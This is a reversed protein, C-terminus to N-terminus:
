YHLSLTQSKVSNEGGERLELREKLAEDVARKGGFCGGLRLVVDQVRSSTGNM